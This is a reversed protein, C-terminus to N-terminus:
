RAAMSLGKITMLGDSLHLDNTTISVVDYSFAHKSTKNFWFVILFNWRVLIYTVSVIFLAIFSNFCFSLDIMEQKFFNDSNLSLIRLNKACFGEYIWSIVIKRFLIFPWEMHFWGVKGVQGVHIKSTNQRTLIAM